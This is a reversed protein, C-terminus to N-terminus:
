RNFSAVVLHKTIIIKEYISFNISYKGNVNDIVYVVLFRLEM